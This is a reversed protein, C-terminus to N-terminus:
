AAVSARPGLEGCGSTRRWRPDHQAQQRRVIRTWAKHATLKRTNSSAALRYVSKPVTGFNHEDCGSSRLGPHEHWVAHRGTDSASKKPV